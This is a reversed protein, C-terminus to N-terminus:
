WTQLSLNHRGGFVILTAAATSIIAPVAMEALGEGLGEADGVTDGVGVGVTAAFVFTLAFLLALLVAFAVRLALLLTGTFEFVSVIATVSFAFEAPLELEAFELTVSGFGLELKVALSTARSPKHDKRQSAIAVPAIESRVGQTKGIIGIM